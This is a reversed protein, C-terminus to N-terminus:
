ALALEASGPEPPSKASAKSPSLELVRDLKASQKSLQELVTAATFSVFPEVRRKDPREVADSTCGGLSETCPLQKASGELTEVLLGRRNM